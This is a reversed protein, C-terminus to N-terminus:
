IAEAFFFRCLEHRKEASCCKADFFDLADRAFEGSVDFEPCEGGGIEPFLVAFVPYPDVVLKDRCEVAHERFGNGNPVKFPVLGVSFEQVFNKSRKFAFEAVLQVVDDLLEGFKNRGSAVALGVFDLREVFFDVGCKSRQERADLHFQVNGYGCQLREEFARGDLNDIFVVSELAVNRAHSSTRLTGDLHRKDAVEGFDLLVVVIM